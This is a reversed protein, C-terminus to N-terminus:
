GFHKAWTAVLGTAFMKWPGWHYLFDELYGMGLLCIAGIAFQKMLRGRWVGWAAMLAIILVNGYFNYFYWALMSQPEPWLYGTLRAYTPDVIAVTALIM